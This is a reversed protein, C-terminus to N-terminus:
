KLELINTILNGYTEKLKETEIKFTKRDLDQESNILSKGLLGLLTSLQDTYDGISLKIQSNSKFHILISNHVYLVDTLIKGHIIKAENSKESAKGSIKIETETKELERLEIVRNFIHIIKLYDQFNAHLDKLTQKKDEKKDKLRQYREVSLYTILGAVLLLALNFFHGFLTILQDNTLEQM